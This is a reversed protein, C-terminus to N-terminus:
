GFLDEYSVRDFLDLKGGATANVIRRGDAEFMLKALQYNALVRDLQPDKWVKGAGFYDPHFHNPDHGTSVILTGNVQADDPVTYSFDMGILVIETFGMYYALQLNIITVSQGSYIRQAADTSFRPICFAPSAEAYFGRNMMFFSTNPAEGVKNRYISPFFKHGAPYAKIAELNDRMVMTDEVVYYSPDFGMRQAAYFIGNVGITFENRLLQLDLENLSPGNGIIVCREGAHIDKFRALDEADITTEPYEEVECAADPDPETIGIWPLMGLGTAGVAVPETASGAALWSPLDALGIENLRGNYSTREKISMVEAGESVLDAVRGGKRITLAILEEVAADRPFSVVLNTHKSRSLVWENLSFSPWTTAELAETVGQAGSTRETNLFAASGGSELKGAVGIMARAQAANQPLFLSTYSQEVGEVHDHAQITQGDAVKELLVQSLPELDDALISIQQLSLGLHRRFGDEITAQFDIHRDMWPEVPTESHELILEAAKRDGSALATAAYQLARRAQALQRQYTPLPDPFRYSAGPGSLVSPDSTYSLNIQHQAVVVHEKAGRKAMSSQKQRYVATRWKSPVFSYGRRMIRLWLDWDEAGSRMTEDFGGLARAVETRLLPAHANFPCEGHASVFDIVRREGWSEHDPLSELAVEESAIRVGCFAGAVTTDSQAIAEVRDLLSDAMLMDDSDVFTIFRGKALRLGTNRAASLGGNLKHRIVRFRSDATAYRHAEAVSSDTSADDVVICEFDGFSQRRISELNAGIFRRENYCPVVVTVLPATVISSSELEPESLQSTLAKARAGDGRVALISRRAREVRDARRTEENPGVRLVAAAARPSRVSGRDPQKSQRVLQNIAAYNASLRISILLVMLSSSVLASVVALKSAPGSTLVATVTAAITVILLAGRVSLLHKAATKLHRFRDSM